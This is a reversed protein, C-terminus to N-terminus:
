YYFFFFSFFEFSSNDTITACSLVYSVCYNSVEEVAAAKMKVDTNFSRRTCVDNSFYELGTVAGRNCIEEKADPEQRVSSYRNKENRNRHSFKKNWRINMIKQNESTLDIACGDQGIPLIIETVDVLKQNQVKKEVDPHNRELNLCTESKEGNVKDGSFCASMVKKKVAADTTREDADHLSCKFKPGDGRDRLGKDDDSQKPGFVVTAKTPNKPTTNLMKIGLVLPSVHSPNHVSKIQIPQVTASPLNNSPGNNPNTDRDLSPLPYKNNLSNPLPKGDDLELEVSGTSNKELASTSQVFTGADIQLFLQALTLLYLANLM